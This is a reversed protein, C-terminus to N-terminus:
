VSESDTLPIGGLHRMSIPVSPMMLVLAAAEMTQRGTLIWITLQSSAKAEWHCSEMYDYSASMGTIVGPAQQGKYTTLNVVCM